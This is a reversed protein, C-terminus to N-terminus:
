SDINYYGSSGTVFEKLASAEYDSSEILRCFEAILTSFKAGRDFNAPSQVHTKTDRTLETLEILENLRRKVDAM